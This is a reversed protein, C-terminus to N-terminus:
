AYHRVLSMFTHEKSTKSRYPRQFGYLSSEKIIQHVNRGSTLRSCGGGGLALFVTICAM